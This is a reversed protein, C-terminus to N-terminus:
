FAFKNKPINLLKDQETGKDPDLLGSFGPIWLRYTGISIHRVVQLNVAGVALIRGKNALLGVTPLGAPGVLKSSLAAM